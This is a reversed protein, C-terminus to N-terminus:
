SSESYRPVRGPGLTTRPFTRRFEDSASRKSFNSGLAQQLLMRDRPEVVGVIDIEEEM